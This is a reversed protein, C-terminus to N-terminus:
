WYLYAPVCAPLGKRSGNSNTWADDREIRGEFDGGGSSSEPCMHSSYSVDMVLWCLNGEIKATRVM